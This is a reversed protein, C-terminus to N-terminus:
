GDAAVGPLAAVGSVQILVDPEVFHAVQTIRGPPAQPFYRAFVRNWADFDAARSLFCELRLVHGLDSGARELAKRIQELVVVAQSEVDDGIARRSRPDLPVFGSLFLIDGWRVAASIPAIRSAALDSPYTLRSKAMQRM